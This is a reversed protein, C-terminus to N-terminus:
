LRHGEWMEREKEGEREGPVRGQQEDQRVMKCKKSVNTM